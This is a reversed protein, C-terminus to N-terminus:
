VATRNKFTDYFIRYHGPEQLEVHGGDANFGCIMLTEKVREDKCQIQVKKPIKFWHPICNIGLIDREDVVQTLAEFIIM